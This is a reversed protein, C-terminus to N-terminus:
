SRWRKIFANVSERDELSNGWWCDAFEWYNMKKLVTPKYVRKFRVNEILFIPIENVQYTRGRRNLGIVTITGQAKNWYRGCLYVKSGGRYAVTGYRLVGNKDIHTKKINGVACYKWDIAVNDKSM